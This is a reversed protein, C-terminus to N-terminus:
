RITSPEHELLIKFLFPSLLFGQRRSTLLFANRREDNLIINAVPKEYICKILHFVVGKKRLKSFSTIVLSYQINDFM